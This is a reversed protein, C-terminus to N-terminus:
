GFCVAIWRPQVTIFGEQMAGQLQKPAPSHVAQVDSARAQLAACYPHADRMCRRAHHSLSSCGASEQSDGLTQADSLSGSGTICAGRQIVM